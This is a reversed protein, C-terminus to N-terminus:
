DNNNNHCANNHKQKAYMITNNQNGKGHWIGYIGVVRVCSIRGLLGVISFLISQHFDM